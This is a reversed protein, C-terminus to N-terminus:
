IKRIKNYLEKWDRVKDSHEGEEFSFARPRHEQASNIVDQSGIIAKIVLGKQLIKELIAGEEWPIVPLHIFKNERMWKKIAAPSLMGTQLFLVPFKKSIKEIAGKSGEKPKFSFGKEVISGEVDILVIGAGKKLIFIMGSGTDHASKVTIMIEGTKSPTYEKYAVGDGGSLTRGVSKGDLFFEVLEGGKRFFRGRTEAQLTISEGSVALIDPVIIEAYTFSSFICLLFISIIFSLVTKM